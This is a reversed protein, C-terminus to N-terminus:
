YGCREFILDYLEPWERDGEIASIRIIKSLRRLLPACDIDKYWEGPELNSTIFITTPNWAVFSGKVPVRLKYIDLLRLMFEFPCAGRFDDLLVWNEGSYGDFWKLEPDGSVWLEEMHSEAAQHVFRTKGVGTHGVLVFVDLDARLRPGNILERYRGFSRRYTVWRGWHGEAIELETAGGKIENRIEELDPRSGPKVPSRGHETFDGEKKCYEAAQVSTGKTKELHARPLQRSLSKLSRANDFIVFGQLHPTKEEGEEKGWIIYKAEGSIAELADEDDRTWNNITFCWRRGRTRAATTRRGM